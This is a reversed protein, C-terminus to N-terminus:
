PVKKKLSTNDPFVIVTIYNALLIILNLSTTHIPLSYINM